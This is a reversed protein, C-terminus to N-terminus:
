ICNQKPPMGVNIENFSRTYTFINCSKRCCFCPSTICGSVVSANYVTGFFLYVDFFMWWDYVLAVMSCCIRWLTMVACGYWGEYNRREMTVRWGLTLGIFYPGLLSFTCLCSSMPCSSGGGQLQHCCRYCMWPGDVAMRCRVLPPLRMPPYRFSSFV